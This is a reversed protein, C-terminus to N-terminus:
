KGLDILFQKKQLEEFLALNSNNLDNLLGSFYARNRKVFDPNKKIFNIIKLDDETKM